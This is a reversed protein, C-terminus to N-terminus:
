WRAKEIKTGQQENGYTKETMKEDEESEAAGRMKELPRSGKKTKGATGKHVHGIPTGRAPLGEPFGVKTMTRRDRLKKRKKVGMAKQEGMGIESATGKGERRKKDPRRIINAQGRGLNKGTTYEGTLFLGEHDKSGTDRSRIKKESFKGANGEELSDVYKHKRKKATKRPGHPGDSVGRRKKETKAQTGEEQKSTKLAGGLPHLKLRTQITLSSVAPVRRPLGFAEVWLHVIEKLRKRGSRLNGGM